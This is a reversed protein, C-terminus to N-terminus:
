VDRGEGGGGGNGRLDWKGNELAEEEELGPTVENLCAGGM